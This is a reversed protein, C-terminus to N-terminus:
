DENPIESLSVIHNIMVSVQSNEYSEIFRYFKKGNNTAFEIETEVMDISKDISYISRLTTIATKM